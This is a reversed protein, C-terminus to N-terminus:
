PVLGLPTMHCLSAIVLKLMNKAEISRIDKEVLRVVIYQESQECVWWV